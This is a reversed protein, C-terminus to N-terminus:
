RLVATTAGTPAAAVATRRGRAKRALWSRVRLYHAWHVHWPRYREALRQAATRDSALDHGYVEVMARLLPADVLVPGDTRGAGRLLTFQASWPGIGGLTRLWTEAEAYTAQGLFAEQDGLFAHALGYLYIARQENRLVALLHGPEAAALHSPSPFAVHEAGEVTLNPGFAHLLDRRMKAAVTMHNHQTLVAWCAAEFATPFRTPHYGHFAALVPAFAEDQAAQTYFPALDDTLALTHDLAALAHSLGDPGWAAGSHLRVDVTASADNAATVAFAIARGDVNLAGILGGGADPRLTDRTATSVALVAVTHALDFPSTTAAAGHWTHLHARTTPSRDTMSDRQVTTTQKMPQHMSSLPKM